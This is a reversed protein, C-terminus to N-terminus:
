KKRKALCRECTVEEWDKSEIIHTHEDYYINCLIEYDDEEVHELKHIPKKSM